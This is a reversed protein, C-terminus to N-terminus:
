DQYPYLHLPLPEYKHKELLDQTIKILEKIKENVMMNYPNQNLVKKNRKFWEYRQNKMCKFREDNEKIGLFNVIKRVEREQDEKLFEYHIVVLNPSLIVWDFILDAWKQVENFAFSQFLISGIDDDTNKGYGM